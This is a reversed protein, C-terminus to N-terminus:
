KAVYDKYIKEIYDKNYIQKKDDPILKLINNIDITKLNRKSLLYEVYTRHVKHQASLAYPLSYGWPHEKKIPTIYDDIANYIADTNYEKKYNYNLYQMILEICLNGPLRGIGNLSADISISREKSKLQTFLIANSFSLSLHEHLHIGLTIGPNLESEIFSIIKRLDDNKMYGLTDVITFTYPKIENVTNILNIFQEKTYSLLNIPNIHCLYGKDIIKRCSDLGEKIDNIHFACRIHSISGDCDDLNDSDYQDQQLMVAFQTNESLDNIKMKADALCNYITRDPSTEENRLFGLEIIDIKSKELHEIISKIENLGFNFNNVYGGDRLTCDIIKLM